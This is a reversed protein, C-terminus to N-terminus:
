LIRITQWTITCFLVVLTILNFRNWYTFDFAFLVCTIQGQGVNSSHLIIREKRWACVCLPVQQEM